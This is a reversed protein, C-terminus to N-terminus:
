VGWTLPLDLRITLLQPQKISLHSPFMSSSMADGGSYRNISKSIPEASLRVGHKAM